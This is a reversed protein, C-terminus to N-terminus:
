RVSRFLLPGIGDDSVLLCQGLEWVVGDGKGPQPQSKEAVPQRLFRKGDQLASGFQILGTGRRQLVHGLHQLLQATAVLRHLGIQFRRLAAQAM